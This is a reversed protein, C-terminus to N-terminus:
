SRAALRPLQIAGAKPSSTKKRRIARPKGAPRDLAKSAVRDPDLGHGDPFDFYPGIQDLTAPGLGRVRKRADELSRFPREERAKVWRDVLSSGVHPLAALVEPPATNPDLRLAPVKAVAGGSSREVSRGAFGLLLAAAIVAATLVFRAKVLWLFPGGEGPHDAKISQPRPDVMSSM